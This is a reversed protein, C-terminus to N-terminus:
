QDVVFKPFFDALSVVREEVFGKEILQKKIEGFYGYSFVICHSKNLSIWDNPGVVPIRSKPTLFKNSEFNSDLLASFRDSSKLAALTMVGRGGAGFGVIRENQPISKIWEDIHCITQNIRLDLDKLHANHTAIQKSPLDSKAVKKAVIILSNGRVQELPIPDIALVEFGQYELLRVADTPTMYITHEHEFLCYETRDIIKELNHIEFAIVGGENLMSHTAQLYEVPNRVHDLTYSSLAVDFLQNVKSKTHFGFLEVLTPIKSEVAIRALYDSPEVGLVQSVGFKLFQSLQVGDGSGVEIVSKPKKNNVVEFYHILIEAYKQMFNKTFASHGTSYQYDRYYKEYDFDNPNQVLGCRDCEFISIDELYEQRLINDVTIFDDTLPMKTLSLFRDKLRQNCYRCNLIKLHKNKRCGSENLM